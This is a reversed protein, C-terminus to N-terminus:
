GHACHGDRLVSPECWRRMKGGYATNSIREDWWSTSDPHPDLIVDWGSMREACTVILEYRLLL